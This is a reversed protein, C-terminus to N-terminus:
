CLLLNNVCFIFESCNIDVHVFLLMVCEGLAIDYLSFHITSRHRIQEWNGYGYEVLSAALKSVVDVTWVAAKIVMPKFSRRRRTGKQKKNDILVDKKTLDNSVDFIDKDEDASDSGSDYDSSVDQYMQTKFNLGNDAYNIIAQQRCKRKGLTVVEDEDVTLGVVKTWFDPDDVDVTEEASSVFSATSFSPLKKSLSCNSSGDSDHLIVTSRALIADIDADNFNKSVTESLGEKEERFIDYAGHKLLGEIEKNSLSQSETPPAKNTIRKSPSANTINDLSQSNKSSNHMIAYDLGLKLSASQFMQMEYTKRTLLRYVKVPKTQGIRHARAQAQIDNQPNWDSNVVFLLCHMCVYM